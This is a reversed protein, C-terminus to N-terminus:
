LSLSRTLLRCLINHRVPHPLSWAPCHNGRKSSCRFCLRHLDRSTVNGVLERTTRTSRSELEVIHTRPLLWRAPWVTLVALDFCWRVSWLPVAVLKTLSRFIFRTHHCVMDVLCLRFFALRCLLTWCFNTVFSETCM